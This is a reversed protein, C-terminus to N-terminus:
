LRDLRDAGADVTDKMQGRPGVDHGRDLQGFGIEAGIDIAGEIHEFRRPLM